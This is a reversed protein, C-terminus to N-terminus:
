KDVGKNRQIQVKVGVITLVGGCMAITELTEGLLFYSFVLASVPILMGFPLVVNVPLRKLLANWIFLGILSAVTMIGICGWARYSVQGLPVWEEREWLYSFLFLWPFSLICSWATVSFSSLRRNIGKVQLAASAYCFAVILLLIIAWFNDIRVEPSDIILYIGIFALGMGVFQRFVITERFFIYSLLVGFIVELETLLAAIAADVYLIAITTLGFPIAFLTLSLWVLKAWEAKGKPLTLFPISLVSMCALRIGVSLLPTIEQAAIKMLPFCLGWLTVSLIAVAIDTSSLKKVQM